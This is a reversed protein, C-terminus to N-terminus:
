RVKLSTYGNNVDAILFRPHVTAWSTGAISIAELKYSLGSEWIEAWGLLRDNQIQLTDVKFFEVVAYSPGSM